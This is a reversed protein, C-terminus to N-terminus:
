KKKSKENTAEEIINDLKQNIVQLVKDGIVQAKDNEAIKQTAYAGAMLYATKQTPTFVLLVGTIAAIWAIMKLLQKQRNRVSMVSEKVNGQRDLNWSWETGDFAWSAVAAGLGFVGFISSVFLIILANHLNDLLSVGYVLLAFDM